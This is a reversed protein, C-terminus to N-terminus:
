GGLQLRVSNFPQIRDAVAILLYQILNFHLPSM